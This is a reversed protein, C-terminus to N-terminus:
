FAHKKMEGFCRSADNLYAAMVQEETILANGMCFATVRRPHLSRVAQRLTTDETVAILRCPMVGRSELLSKRDMFDRLEAMACTITSRAASYM